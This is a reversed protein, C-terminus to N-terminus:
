AFPISALGDGSRNQPSMAEQWAATQLLGNSSNRGSDSTNDSKVTHKVDQQAAKLLKM